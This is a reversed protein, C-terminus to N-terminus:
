SFADPPPETPRPPAAHRAPHAETLRHVIEGAHPAICSHYCSPCLYFYGVEARFGAYEGFWLSMLAIMRRPDTKGCRRCPRM